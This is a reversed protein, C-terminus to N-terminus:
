EEEPPRLKLLTYVGIGALSLVTIEGLTDLARFDVIIVNVINRGHALTLSNEAFFGSIGSGQQVSLSVLVLFAMMLGSIIGVTANVLRQAPTLFTYRPLRYIVLVFLIVTMTEIIFQTMALDPAGFDVFILALGYGIVGMAVIASLRSKVGVAFVAAAVILISVILEFFRITLKDLNIYFGGPHTILSFIVLSGATLVITLIYHHLHGGQFLHTQWAAVDKLGRLTMDYIGEPGFRGIWRAAQALSKYRDYLLYLCTGMLVTACSMTLMPTFGHWLALRVNEARPLVASIAPSIVTMDILGPMLGFVLGAVAPALAGLLLPFSVKHHNQHTKGSPAFFPRIILMGTAAFLLANAILSASTAWGVSPMGLITEYILEKSVFGLLPPLGAMSLGSLLVALTIVPLRGAIGRLTTVDRSGTEHDVVGAALFLASKYLAHATLYVVAAQVAVPTGVGILFVMTGLGNVTTYALIRKIDSQILALWAGAVMTVAGFGALSTHWLDTGSFIPTLRLLLYIGAKVMTASHLFASVPAPGEMASPLWFHFPFQASKTFAGIIILILIYPYLFHHRVAAGQDILKYIEFSNGITGLMLVGALLALGGLGTVLLAQLAADRASERHHDFGILFYSTLSTLEWFIFLTILNGALVVGLMSAMFALLYLYYRGLQLHGRLYDGSYYVIFTGIGTILLAFILALGDLYFSFSVGISPVWQHLEIVPNGTRIPTIYKTFSIFLTLPLVSLIGGSWSPKLRHLAPAILAFVFGSIVTASIM